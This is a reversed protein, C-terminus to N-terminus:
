KALAIRKRKPKHMMDRALNCLARNGTETALELLRGPQERFREAFREDRTLPAHFRNRLMDIARSGAPLSAARWIPGM